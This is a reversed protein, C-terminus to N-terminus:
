TTYGQDELWEYFEIDDYTDLGEQISLLEIEDAGHTRTHSLPLLNKYAVVAMFILVFAGAPVLLRHRFSAPRRALAQGRIAALEALTDRDIKEVSDEFRNRVSNIFEQETQKSNM